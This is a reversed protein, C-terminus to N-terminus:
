AGMLGHAYLANVVTRLMDNHDSQSSANTLARAVAGTANAVGTTYRADLVQDGDISVTGGTIELNANLDAGSTTVGLEVTSVKLYSRDEALLKLEADGDSLTASVEVVGGGTTVELSTRSAAALDSSVTFTSSAGSTGLRARTSLTGARITGLDIHSDESGGTSDDLYFDVFHTRVTNYWGAVQSGGGAGESNRVSVKGGLGSPTASVLKGYTSPSSVGLGFGGSTDLEAQDTNSTQFKIPLFSGTGYKTSSFAVSTPSAYFFCVSSNDPDSSNSVAVNSTTSTGSPIVLVGTASNATSTQILLRNALTASTFDGTIRRASGTFSLNGGIVASNSITVGSSTTKEAITDTQIGAAFPIVATTTTQGDKTIVSSLASAIDDIVATFKAVTIKAGVVPPYSAGPPTFVGSGNYPM